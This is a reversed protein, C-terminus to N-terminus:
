NPVPEGKADVKEYGPEGFKFVVCNVADINVIDPTPLHMTLKGRKWGKPIRSDLVDRLSWTYRPAAGSAAYVYQNDSVEANSCDQVCVRHATFQVLMGSISPLLAHCPM